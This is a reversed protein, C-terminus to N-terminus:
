SPMGQVPESFRWKKNADLMLGDALGEALFVLMGAAGLNAILAWPSSSDILSRWPWLDFRTSQVKSLVIVFFVNISSLYEM